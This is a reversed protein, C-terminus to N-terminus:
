VPGGWTFVRPPPAEFTFGEPMFTVLKTLAEISICPEVSRGEDDTGLVLAKGCLPQYYGEVRFFRKDEKFLGEDDVFLADSECPLDHGPLRVVDFTGAGIHEYINRYDGSYDVETITQDFPNILLAKM